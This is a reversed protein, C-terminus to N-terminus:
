GCGALNLILGEGQAIVTIPVMVLGFARLVLEPFDYFAKPLLRHAPSDIADFVVVIVM